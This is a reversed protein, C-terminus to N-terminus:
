SVSALGPQPTQSPETVFGAPQHRALLWVGTAAVAACFVMAVLAAPTQNLGEGLLGASVLIAVLPDGVTLASTVVPAPGSGYAQQVAWAGVAIASVMALAAMIVVPSLLATPHGVSARAIFRILASGLGYGVAGISAFALCRAPFPLRGAALRLVGVVGVAVLVALSLGSVTVPAPPAASPFSALVVFAVTGAVALAVGGIVRKSPRARAAQAALMVGVPVALIGVPQVVSIPALLLATVHLLTGAGVLAWGVLWRPQRALRRLADFGVTGTNAAGRGRHFAMDRAVSGQQLFAASAFCVAAVVALAVAVTTALWPAAFVM